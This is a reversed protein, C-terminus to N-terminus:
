LAVSSDVDGSFSLFNGREIYAAIAKVLSALVTGVTETDFSYVGIIACKTQLVSMSSNMLRARGYDDGM